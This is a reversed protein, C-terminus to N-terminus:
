ELRKKIEALEQGLDKLAVQLTEVLSFLQKLCVFVAQDKVEELGTKLMGM